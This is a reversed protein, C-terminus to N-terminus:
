IMYAVAVFHVIFTLSATICELFFFTALIVISAHIMRSVSVYVTQPYPLCLFSDPHKKGHTVFSM